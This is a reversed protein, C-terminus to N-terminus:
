YGLGDKRGDARSCVNRAGCDPRRGRRQAKGYAEQLVITVPTSAEEEHEAMLGLVALEVLRVETRLRSIDRGDISM